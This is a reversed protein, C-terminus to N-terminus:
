QDLERAVKAAVYEQYCPYCSLPTREGVHDPACSKCRCRSMWVELENEDLVRYELGNFEASQRGTDILAQLDNARRMRTSTIWKGDMPSFFQLTYNVM